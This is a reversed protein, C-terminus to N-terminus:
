GKGRQIGAELMAASLRDYCQRAAKEADYGKQKHVQASAEVTVSGHYDLKKLLRFYEVYDTAGEGPLLFQLKEGAARDKVHIFVTDPLLLRLSAELGIPLATFHSFDYALKLWPSGIQAILWHADEPTHLANNVHAKVAIVTENSKGVEAWDRLRAVFMERVGLWDSPKGGLVTEVVPSGAPSVEHGLQAAAKLQDLNARHKADDVAIPLNVMVAPLGLGLSGLLARLERRQSTSFNAPETPSGPLLSLEIDDYGIAACLKAAEDVPMGPMGYLSFGLTIPWPSAETALSRDRWVL